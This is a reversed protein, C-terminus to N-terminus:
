VRPVPCFLPSRRSLVQFPVRAQAVGSRLKSGDLRFMVRPSQDHIFANGDELHSGIVRATRLWIMEESPTHSGSEELRLTFRHIEEHGRAIRFAHLHHSKRYEDSISFCKIFLNTVALQFHRAPTESWKPGNTTSTRPLDRVGKTKSNPANCCSSERSRELTASRATLWSRRCEVRLTV